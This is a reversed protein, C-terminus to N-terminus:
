RLPNFKVGITLYTKRTANFDHLTTEEANQLTYKDYVSYTGRLMLATSKTFWYHYELGLAVTTFTAQEIAESQNELSFSSNINASFDNLDGLVKISHKKNFNYQVYTNPIGLAFSVKDNVKGMLNTVPIINTKGSITLYGVGLVLTYFGKKNKRFFTKETSLIGNVHLDKSSLKGELNSLVFPTFLANIKWNKSAKYSTLLSYNINYFNNLNNTISSESEQYNFHHYDMGLTNYFTFNKQKIPKMGVRINAKQYSFLDDQIITPTYHLYMVDRDLVFVEGGVQAFGKVVFSLMVFLM